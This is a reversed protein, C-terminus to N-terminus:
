RKSDFPVTFKEKNPEGGWKKIYYEKNKEKYADLLTPEKMITMSRRFIVPNLFGFRTIKMGELKMRYEADNDEYYAPFFTPDFTVKEWTKKSLIFSCWDFEEECLVFNYGTPVFPNEIFGLLAQIQAEEKGLYIDDNLMLIHTHEVFAVDCLANWAGAVGKNNGDGGFVYINKLADYTNNCLKKIGVLKDIISQDGNDYIFIKTNPFDSAYMLLAPLLLDIRNLTPIGIAFNNKTETM